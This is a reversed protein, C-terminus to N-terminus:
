NQVEEKKKRDFKIAYTIFFECAIIFLFVIGVIIDGFDKSIKYKSFDDALQYSGKQFFIVLFSTLIMLLPNFKALWSVLIATFGYGGVIGDSLSLKISGVLMAGVLGSIAGSLMLTRITVKKVSLGIYKATNKSEGVVSIEYGHKTFRLYIYLFATLVLSVIIIALFSNGIEPFKGNILNYQKHAPDWTKLFFNVLSIAIYNMMLTFLTENTNFKAKFIAPIVSWVIGALMGGLIMLIVLMVKGFETASMAKGCYGAIVATMLSSILVQGEAGINWFKMKFAPTIALAISLLIATEQLTQWRLSAVGSASQKKPNGFAGHFISAFIELPNRGTIVVILISSILAAAFVAVIRILWSKWLPIATRKTIHFLPERATKDNNKM